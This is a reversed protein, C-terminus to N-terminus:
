TEEVCSEGYKVTYMLSLAISGSMHSRDNTSPVCKGMSHNSMAAQHAYIIYDIGGFRTEFEERARRDSERAAENFKTHYKDRMRILSLIYRKFRLEITQYFLLLM